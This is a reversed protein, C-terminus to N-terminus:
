SPVSFIHFMGNQSRTRPCTSIATWSKTTPDGGFPGYHVVLLARM